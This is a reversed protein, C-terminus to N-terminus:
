NPKTEGENRWVSVQQEQQQATQRQQFHRQQKMPMPRQPIPPPLPSPLPPLLTATTSGNSNTWAVDLEDGEPM